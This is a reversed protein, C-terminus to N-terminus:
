YRKQLYKSSFKIKDGPKYSPLLNGTKIVAISENSNNCNGLM